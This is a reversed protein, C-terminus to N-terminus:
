FFYNYYAPRIRIDYIDHREFLNKRLSILYNPNSVDSYDFKIPNINASNNPVLGHETIAYSDNVCYIRMYTKTEISNLKVFVEPIIRAPVILVEFKEVFDLTTRAYDPIGLLMKAINIYSLSERDVMVCDKPTTPGGKMLRRAREWRLKSYIDDIEADAMNIAYRARVKRMSFMTLIRKINLIKIMDSTSMDFSIIFNVNNPNMIAPRDYLPDNGNLDIRNTLDVPHYERHYEIPCLPTDNDLVITNCSYLNNTLLISFVRTDGVGVETIPMVPNWYVITANQNKRPARAEIAGVNEHRYVLVTDFVTNLLQEREVFQVDEETPVYVILNRVPVNAVDAQPIAFQFPFTVFQESIYVKINVPCAM